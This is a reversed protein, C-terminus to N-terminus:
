RRRLLALGLGLLVLTAPEPSLYYAMDLSTTWGAPFAGEYISVAGTGDVGWNAWPPYGFYTSDFAADDGWTPITRDRFNWYFADFYGDDVMVGQISVWYVIPDTPTGQQYFWHDEPLNITFTGDGNDRWGTAGPTPTPPLLSMVDYSYLQSGPHSEDDPTEPVNSWFQIRFGAIYQNGYYSWGAFHLDNVPGPFTCLFDDASRADSPTDNDVWSAGGYSDIGDMQNWKIPDGWDRPGVSLPALASSSATYPGPVGAFAPMAVLGLLAVITIGRLM